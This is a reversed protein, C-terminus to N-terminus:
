LETGIKPYGFGSWPHTLHYHYDADTKTAAALRAVGLGYKLNEQLISFKM